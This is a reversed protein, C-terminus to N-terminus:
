LVARFGQVGGGFFFFCTGSAFSFMGAKLDQVSRLQASSLKSLDPEM